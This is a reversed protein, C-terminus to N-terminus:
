GIGRHLARAVLVCNGKGALISITILTMTTMEGEGEKKGDAEDPSEPKRSLQTGSRLGRPLGGAVM